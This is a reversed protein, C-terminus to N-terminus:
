IGELNNPRLHEILIFGTATAVMLITFIAMAQGYNLAGPQGLFQYIALPITPTTPAATFITAGFEGLSITFAFVAAAVLSRSMLPLDIYRFVQWPGAGLMAGAEGIQEPISRLAPLVARLVFPFGVLAHVLPILMPSTRLNLPPHDLTIIIGFGLTAASTSLPLMFLPDFFTTLRSHIKRDCHSIFVAACVGTVLAICLAGGAFFFSFKIAQFPPVYFVSDTTNEFIARYYVLSFENNHVLSNAALSLLPIVCLIIIFLAMGIVMVKEQPSVPRKLRVPGARPVFMAARRSFSTYLTM